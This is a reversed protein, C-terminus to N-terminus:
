GDSVRMEEATTRFFRVVPRHQCDKGIPSAVLRKGALSQITGILTTAYLSWQSITARLLWYQGKLMWTAGYIFAEKALESFGHKEVDVDARAKM